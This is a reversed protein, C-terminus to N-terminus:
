TKFQLCLSLIETSANLKPSIKQSKIDTPSVGSSLATPTVATFNHNIVTTYNVM